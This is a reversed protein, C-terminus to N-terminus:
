QLTKRVKDLMLANTGGFDKMRVVARFHDISRFHAFAISVNRFPNNKFM